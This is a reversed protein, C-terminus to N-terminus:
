RLLFLRVRRKGPTQRVGWGTANWKSTKGTWGFGACCRRTWWRRCPGTAMLTALFLPIHRTQDPKALARMTRDATGRAVPEWVDPSLARGAAVPVHARLRQMQGTVGALNDEIKM